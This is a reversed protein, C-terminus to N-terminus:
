GAREDKQRCGEIKCLEEKLGRLFTDISAFINADIKALGGALFTKSKETPEVNHPRASSGIGIRKSAGGCKGCAMYESSRELDSIVVSNVIM